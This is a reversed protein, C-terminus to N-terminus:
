GATLSRMTELLAEPDFPKTVYDDAGADAAERKKESNDRSTLVVVTADPDNRKINATATVGDVGEIVLDMLVVDPELDQYLSLAEEGSSTEGVVEFEETLIERLTEVTYRSDDVILVERTM